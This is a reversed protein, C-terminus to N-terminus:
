VDDGLKDHAALVGITSGRAVLPVWLGSRAGMMRLTEQDADPDDLVSDIRESRARALVRGSKSASQSISQGVVLDGGEGAVAALRLRDHGTPLLVIVLRADLLERRAM